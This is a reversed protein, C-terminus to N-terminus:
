KSVTNLTPRKIKDTDDHQHESGHIPPNEQSGQKVFNHPPFINPLLKQYLLSSTSSHFSQNDSFDM